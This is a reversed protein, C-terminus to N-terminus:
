ARPAFNLFRFPQPKKLGVWGWVLFGLLSLDAAVCGHVADARACVREWGAKNWRSGGHATENHGGSVSAVPRSGCGQARSSSRKRCARRCGPRACVDGGRGSEFEARPIARPARVVARELRSQGAAVDVARRLESALVHFIDDTNGSLHVCLRAVGWECLLVVVEQFPAHHHTHPRTDARARPLHCPTRQTATHATCVRSRALARVHPPAAALKRGTAGDNHGANQPQLPLKTCVNPAQIVTGRVGGGGGM